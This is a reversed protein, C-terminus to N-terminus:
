SLLAGGAMLRFVFGPLLRMMAPRQPMCRRFVDQGVEVIVLDRVFAHLRGEVPTVAFEVDFRVTGVALLTLEFNTVRNAYCRKLLVEHLQLSAFQLGEIDSPIRFGLPPEMEIWVLIRAGGATHMPCASILIPICATGIAM